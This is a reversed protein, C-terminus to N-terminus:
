DVGKFMRSFRIKGDFLDLEQDLSLWVFSPRGVIHDEPVFGFFRSDQSRHRNDGMMWYYDLTFTYSDAAEGNIFIKGDRVSVTNGEYAEIARRYLPLNDLTLDISMGKAPILLPGFNDRSWDYDPHNPYIAWVAGPNWMVEKPRIDKYMTDVYNMAGLQEAQVDTLSVVYPQIQNTRFDSYNIGYDEKLRDKMVNTITTNTFLIYDHQLGPIDRLPEGDLTLLGDSIELTQGPLGVCRKVYNEKKDKPRVKVTFQPNRLFFNAAAKEYSRYNKEFENQTRAQRFGFNRKYQYWSTVEDEVIVTDGLPYNFVVPDTLEVESWGPLRYYDLKQWDLFSNVNLIPLTHHTLPFSIPTEPIKAGYRAKSVFLYDGVLMSKEMSPTPITFAEFVFTRVIFAVIIAFLLADAWERTGGKKGEKRWNLNGTYTIDESFAMKPILYFPAVIALITNLTGRQGFSWALQVNMIILMLFQVGPIFLILAWYWPRSTVKQWIFLNYIPVWGEWSARGAKQFLKWLSAYTAVVTLILLIAPISM